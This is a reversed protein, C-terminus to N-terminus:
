WWWTKGRLGSLEYTLHKPRDAIFKAPVGGVLTYPAVVGRVVAGAAVVAGEGITTGPLVIARPGIWVHDGIDVPAQIYDFGPAQWDHQASWIMVQTSINVDRGLTVGGRADLIAGDGVSTRMGIHLNRAARIQFGHYIVVDSEIEAGFLQLAAIRLRHVPLFAALHLLTMELSSYKGRAFALLKKM